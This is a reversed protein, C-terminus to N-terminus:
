SSSHDGPALLAKYWPQSYWDELAAIFNSEAESLVTGPGAFLHVDMHFPSQYLNRQPPRVEGREIKDFLDSLSALATAAEIYQVAIEELASRYERAASQLLEVKSM